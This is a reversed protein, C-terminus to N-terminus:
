GFRRTPIREYGLTYFAELWISIGSGFVSVGRWREVVTADRAMNSADLM